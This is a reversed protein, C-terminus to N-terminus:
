FYHKIYKKSTGFGDDRNRKHTDDDEHGGHSLLHGEIITYRSLQGNNINLYRVEVISDSMFIKELLVAGM